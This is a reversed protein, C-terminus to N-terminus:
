GSKFFHCWISQKDTNYNLCYVNSLSVTVTYIVISNQCYILYKVLKYAFVIKPSTRHPNICDSSSPHKPGVLSISLINKECFFIRIYDHYGGLGGQLYDSTCNTWMTDLLIISINHWRHTNRYFTINWPAMHGIYKNVATVLRDVTEIAWANQSWTLVRKKFMGYLKSFLDLGDHSVNIRLYESTVASFIFPNNHGLFSKDM